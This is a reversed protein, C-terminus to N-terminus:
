LAANNYQEGKYKPEGTNELRKRQIGLREIQSLLLRLYRLGRVLTGRRVNTRICRVILRLAIRSGLVGRRRIRALSRIGFRSRGICSGILNRVLHRIIVDLSSKNLVRPAIGVTREAGIKSVIIAIACIEFATCHVAHRLTRRCLSDIHALM